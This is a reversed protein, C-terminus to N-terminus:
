TAVPGPGYAALSGDTGALGKMLTTDPVELPDLTLSPVKDWDLAIRTIGPDTYGEVVPFTIEFEVKDPDAYIQNSPPTPPPASGGEM